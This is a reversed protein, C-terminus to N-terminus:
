AHEHIFLNQSRKELVSLTRRFGSELHDLMCKRALEPDHARLARTISFHEDIILLVDQITGQAEVLSRVRISREHVRQALGWFLNNQTSRLITEHLELDATLHAGYNKIEAEQRAIQLLADMRDIQKDTLNKAARQVAWCETMMRMEYVERVDAATVNAVRPNQYSSLEVLGDRELMALAERVPTHSVGFEEALKDIVIPQGPQLGNTLILEKIQSSIQDKLTSKEVKKISHLKPQTM